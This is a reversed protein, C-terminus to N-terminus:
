TIKQLTLEPLEKSVFEALAQSFVDPGLALLRSYLDSKLRNKRNEVRPSNAQHVLRFTGYGSLLKTWWTPVPRESLNKNGSTMSRFNLRSRILALLRQELTDNNDSRGNTLQRATDGYSQVELRWTGEPLEPHLKWAEYINLRYGDRNVGGVYWTLAKEEGKPQDEKDESFYPTAAATSTYSKSRFHEDLTAFPVISAPVDFKDDRRILVLGHETAHKIIKNARYPVLSCGKGHITLNNLKYIHCDDEVVKFRIFTLDILKNFTFVPSYSNKESQTKRRFNQFSIGILNQIIDPTPADDFILDDNLLTELTALAVVSKGDEKKIRLCIPNEFHKDQRFELHDFTIVPTM